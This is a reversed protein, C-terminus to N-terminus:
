LETLKRMGLTAVEVLYFPVRQPSSDLVYILTSYAILLVDIIFIFPSLFFFTFKCIM